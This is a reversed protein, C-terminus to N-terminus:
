SPKTPWVVQHMETVAGHDFDRLAQRYTQWELRKAESLPSDVGQTWDCELLLNNRIQRARQSASPPAKNGAKRVSFPTTTLDLEDETHSFVPRNLSSELIYSMNMTRNADCLQQAKSETTHRVWYIDGDTNNYFVFKPETMRNAM